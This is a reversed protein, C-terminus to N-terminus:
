SARSSYLTAYLALILTITQGDIGYSQSASPDTGSLREREAFVSSCLIVALKITHGVAVFHRNIRWM